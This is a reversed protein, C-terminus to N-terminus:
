GPLTPRDLPPDTWGDGIALTNQSGKEGSCLGPSHSGSDNGALEWPRRALGKIAPSGRHNARPTTGDELRKSRQTFGVELGM